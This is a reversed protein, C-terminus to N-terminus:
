PSYLPLLLLYMVSPLRNATKQDSPQQFLRDAYPTNERHLLYLWFFVSESAYDSPDPIQYPM